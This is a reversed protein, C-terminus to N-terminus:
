AYTRGPLNPNRNGGPVFFKGRRGILKLRWHTNPSDQQSRLPQLTLSGALTFTLPSMARSGRHAKMDGAPVVKGKCKVKDKGKVKRKPFFRCIQLCFTLTYILATRKDNKCGAERCCARNNLRDVFAM